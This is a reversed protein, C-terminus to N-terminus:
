GGLAGIRGSLLGTEWSWPSPGRQGFSAVALRPVQDCVRLCPCSGPCGGTAVLSRVAHTKTALMAPPSRGSRSSRTGPGARAQQKGLTSLVLHRLRPVRTEEQGARPLAKGVARAFAPCRTRPGVHQM